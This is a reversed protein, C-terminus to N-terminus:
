DHPHFRWTDRADWIKRLVALAGRPVREVDSMPLGKDITLRALATGSVALIPGTVVGFKSYDTVPCTRAFRPGALNEISGSSTQSPSDRIRSRSYLASHCHPIRSRGNSMTQTLTFPSYVKLVTVDILTRSMDDEACLKLILQTGATYPCPFSSPRIFVSTAPLHRPFDYRSAAESDTHQTGLLAFAGCSKRNSSTPCITTYSRTQLGGHGM